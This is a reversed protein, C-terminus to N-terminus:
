SCKINDWASDCLVLHQLGDLCECFIVMEGSTHLYDEFLHGSRTCSGLGRGCCYSHGQGVLFTANQTANLEM